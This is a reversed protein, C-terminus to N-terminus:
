LKNLSDELLDSSFLLIFAFICGCVQHEGNTSRRCNRVEDSIIETRPCKSPVLELLEASAGDKEHGVTSKTAVDDMDSKTRELPDHLNNHRLIPLESITSSISEHKRKSVTVFRELLSQVRSPRSNFERQAVPSKAPDTPILSSQHIRIGDNQSIAAVGRSNSDEVKSAGHVRLTFDRRVLNEVEPHNLLELEPLTDTRNVFKKQPDDTLLGVKPIEESFSMKPESDKTLSGSKEHLSHLDPTDSETTSDDVKNVSYSVNTSSYVQQLGERLAHLISTEDAFFVKRKDPTVNVDCAGTPLTFNMIAIPYQKSNAGKYLENVLKSVKPMDVPRGNVFFFQRDGLNRGSGQGSKSLFGDVKCGESICISVPELCNFTSMGFVTIINDRLSDRGQTKLVM